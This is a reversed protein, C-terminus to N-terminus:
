NNEGCHRSVLLRIGASEAIVVQEAPREIRVGIRRTGGNSEIVIQAVLPRDITEPLELEVPLDTQDITSFPRGDHEPRLRLGARAPRSSGRRAGCSGIASTPSECRRTRSGVGPRRGCSCPRPIFTWSPASSGTAPLRALWDDLQDDPSRGPTRRASGPRPPSDPPSVGRAPGLDARRAPAPWSQAALVLFDDWTRCQAGGAM